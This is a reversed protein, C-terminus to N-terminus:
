GKLKSTLDTEFEHVKIMCEDLYTFLKAKTLGDSSIPATKFPVRYNWEKDKNKDPYYKQIKDCIARFEETINQSNIAMQVLVNGSSRTYVEYFYHTETGWASPTGEIDPLIASMNDTTFRAHYRGCNCIDFNIDSRSYAWERTWASVIQFTEENSEAPILYPLM